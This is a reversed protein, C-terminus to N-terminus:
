VEQKEEDNNVALRIARALARGMPLPVGNGIMRFAGKLTFPSGHLFDPPLGQLPLAKRLQEWSAWGYSRTSGTRHQYETGPKVWGSALVAPAWEASEAQREIRDSIKVLALAGFWFRRLRNQIEGLERNNLMFSETCYGVPWKQRLPAGPVNEMLFWRPGAEEVCRVFECILDPQKTPANWTGNLSSHPQCPPGGIIGDFRRAPPHFSRIDGGWLSDPGRVVCFGEEEFARDLLGLGPFLSLVLTNQGSM